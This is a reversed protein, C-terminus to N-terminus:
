SEIRSADRQLRMLLVGASLPVALFIPALSDFEASPKSGYSTRSLDDSDYWVTVATGKPPTHISRRIIDSGCYETGDVIFTYHIRDKLKRLQVRDQLIGEAPLWGNYEATRVNLIVMSCLLALVLILMPAFMASRFIKM